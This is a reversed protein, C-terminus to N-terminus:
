WRVPDLGPEFCYETVVACDLATAVWAGAAELEDMWGACRPPGATSAALRESVRSVADALCAEVLEVVLDAPGTIVSGPVGVKM